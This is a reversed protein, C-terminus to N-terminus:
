LLLDLSSIKFLLCDSLRDFLALLRLCRAAMVDIHYCALGRASMVFQHCAGTKFM